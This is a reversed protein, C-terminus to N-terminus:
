RTVAPAITDGGPASPPDLAGPDSRRGSSDAATTAVPDLTSPATLARCAAGLTLSALVVLRAVHTARTASM